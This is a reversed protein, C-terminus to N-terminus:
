VDVPGWGRTNLGPNRMMRAAKSADTSPTWNGASPPALPSFVREAAAKNAVVLPSLGMGLNGTGLTWLGKAGTTNTWQGWITNLKKEADSLLNTRSGAEVPCSLSGSFGSNPAGTYLFGPMISWVAPLTAFTKHGTTPSTTNHVAPLAPKSEHSM